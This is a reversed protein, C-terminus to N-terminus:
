APMALEAQFISRRTRTEEGCGKHQVHRSKKKEGDASKEQPFVASVQRIETEQDHEM